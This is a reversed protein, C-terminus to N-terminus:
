QPNKLHWSFVSTQVDKRINWCPSFEGCGMTFCGQEALTHQRKKRCNPCNQRNLILKPSTLLGHRVPHKLWWSAAKFWALYSSGSTLPWTVGVNIAWDHNSSEPTSVSSIGLMLKPLYLLEVMDRQDTKWTKKRINMSIILRQKRCKHVRWLPDSCAWQSATIKVADTGGSPEHMAQLAFRTSYPKFPPVTTTRGHMRLTSLLFKPNSLDHHKM